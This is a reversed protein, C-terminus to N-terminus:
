AFVSYRGSRIGEVPVPLPRVDGAPPSLERRVVVLRLPHEPHHAVRGHGRRVLDDPLHRHLHPCAVREAHRRDAHEEAPAAALFWAHSGLVREEAARARAALAAQLHPLAHGAAAVIRLVRQDLVVQVQGLPGPAVTCGCVVAVPTRGSSPPPYTTSVTRVPAQRGPRAARRNVAPCTIKAAPVQPVWCSSCAIRACPESGAMEARSPASVRVLESASPPASVVMRLRALCSKVRPTAMVEDNRGSGPVRM